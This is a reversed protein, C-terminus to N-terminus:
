SKVIIADIEIAVDKPLGSVQITTRAPYPETFFTMMVENVTSFNKLDTLYITLKVIQDTSADCAQCVAVLNKFVQTTQEAFSGEVVTMNTPDLPIQGSLYVTNGVSIAQSYPGIAKPAADTHIKNKM